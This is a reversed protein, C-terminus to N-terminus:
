RSIIIKKYFNGTVTQLVVFYTGNPLSSIDVTIPSTTGFLNYINIQQNGFLDYITIGIPNDPLIIKITSNAPNPVITIKDQESEVSNYYFDFPDSMESKCGFENTVQVYYLGPESVPLSDATAGSIPNDFLYWQNGTKSSSYLVFGKRYITPKEPRPNVKISIITSDSCKGDQLTQFLKIKGMGVQNWQITITNNATDINLIEGNDVTWVSIVGPKVSGSYIEIDNQCVSAKGSVVPSLNKYIRINKRNDAGVIPPSTSVVRIRYLIGTTINNPIKCIITGSTTSQIRGIEVPNTFKGNNDSLQAIFYNDQNFNFTVLYDVPVENNTCFEGEVFTSIEFEKGYFVGNGWTAVFFERSSLAVISTTLQNFLGDNVEEWDTGTKSRLVGKGYTAAYIVNQPSVVIKYISNNASEYVQIWNVGNNTSRYIKGNNTGAYINGSSDLAITNINTNNKFDADVKGWFDFMQTARYLGSTTGVFVFGDSKALICNVSKNKFDNQMQRWSRGFDTSIFLGSYLTGALLKQDRTIALANIYTDTLGNNSPEWSNGFDNSRYIGELSGLFITDKVNLFAFIQLNALGNNKAIWSNGKDSSVFVGESYSGAYLWGNPGIHITNVNGSLSYSTTQWIITQSVVDFNSFTLLAVMTQILIRKMKLGKNSNEM